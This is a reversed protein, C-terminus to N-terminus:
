RQNAVTPDFNIIDRNHKAKILIGDEIPFVNAVHLHIPVIFESGGRSYIKLM